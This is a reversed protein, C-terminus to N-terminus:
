TWGLTEMLSLLIFHLYLSLSLFPSLLSPRLDMGTVCLVYFDSATVPLVTFLLEYHM